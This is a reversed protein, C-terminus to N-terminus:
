RYEAEVKDLLDKLTQSQLGASTAAIAPQMGALEGEGLDRLDVHGGSVTVLHAGAAVDWPKVRTAFLAGARGAAVQALDIAAAGPRRVARFAHVLDAHGKTALAPFKRVESSTPFYTLLVAEGEETITKEGPINGSKLEYFTGAREIWGNTDNAWFVEDTYPLTIAAAVTKGDLQAAISTGFYIFGAAFNATGDIPDVIWKVRSALSRADVHFGPDEFLVEEPLDAPAGGPLIEEGHEEGLKYSGPVFYGLLASIATEAGRDFPTVPDHFDSKTETTAADLKTRAALIYPAVALAATRCMLALEHALESETLSRKTEPNLGTLRPPTQLPYNETSM